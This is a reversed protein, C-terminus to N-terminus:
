KIIKNVRQPSPIQSSVQKHSSLFSKTGRTCDAASNSYVYPLVKVEQVRSKGGRGVSPDFYGLRQTRGKKVWCKKSHLSSEPRQILEICFLINNAPKVATFFVIIWFQNVGCMHLFVYQIRLRRCITDHSHVVARTPPALGEVMSAQWHKKNSMRSQIFSHSKHEQQGEREGEREIPGQFTSYTDTTKNQQIKSIINHQTHFIFFIFITSLLFFFIIIHHNIMLSSCSSNDLLIVSSYLFM